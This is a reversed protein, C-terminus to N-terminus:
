WMVQYYPLVMRLSYCWVILLTEHLIIAKVQSIHLSSVWLMANGGHNCLTLTAKIVVLPSPIHKLAVYTRVIHM